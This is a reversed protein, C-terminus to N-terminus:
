AETPLHLALQDPHVAPAEGTDPKSFAFWGMGEKFGVRGAQFAQELLAEAVWFDLGTARAADWTSVPATQQGMWHLLTGLPTIQALPAHDYELTFGHGRLLNLADQAAAQEGSMPQGVAPRAMTTSATTGAIHITVPASM